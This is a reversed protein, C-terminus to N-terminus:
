RLAQPDERVLEAPILGKQGDIELQGEQVMRNTRALLTVETGRLDQLNQDHTTRDPWNLYPRYHYTVDFGTLLPTSRVQVRYEPTTADGGAVQYWFGNQVEAALLNTF